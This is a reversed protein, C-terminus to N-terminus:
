FIILQGTDLNFASTKKTSTIAMIKKYIERKAERSVNGKSYYYFFRLRDKRTVANSISANLQALNIIKEKKAVPRFRVNDLDIMFYAGNQCLVNSSKFDKQLIDLDHIKKIWDALKKLAERKKRWDSLDSFSSLYDNLLVAEKMFQSIFFSKVGMKFYAYSVPVSIGRVDLARAAKWCALCRDKHFLRAHNIKICINKYEFIKEQKIMRGNKLAHILDREDWSFGRKIYGKLNKTKVVAFESSNKCCRRARSRFRINKCRLAAKIVEELKISKKGGKSYATLNYGALLDVFWSKFGEQHDLYYFLKGLNFIRLSRPLFYFFFLEQVDILCPNGDPNIILNGPHFDAHYVGKSHMGAIKRGVKKADLPLRSSLPEGWVKRTLIFFTDPFIKRIEGKLVPEAADIDAFHLRHLNRWEAWRRRFLIRHRLRDKARILTTIKLFFGGQNTQLFYVQRRNGEKVQSFGTVNFFLSDLSFNPSFAGPKVYFGALEKRLENVSLDAFRGM